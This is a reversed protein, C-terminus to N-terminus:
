LLRGGILGFIAVASVDRDFWQTSPNWETDYVPGSRGYNAKDCRIHPDGQGTLPIHTM